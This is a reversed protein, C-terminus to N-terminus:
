FFGGVTVFYPANALDEFRRGNQSTIGMEFHNNYNWRFQKVRFQLMLKWKKVDSRWQWVTGIPGYDMAVITDNFKGDGLDTLGDRTVFSFRLYGLIGDTGGAHWVMNGSGPDDTNDVISNYQWQLHAPSAATEDVYQRNAAMSANTPSILNYIKTEPQGSNPDLVIHSGNRDNIDSTHSTRFRMQGESLSYINTDTSGSNPEICLQVNPKNGRNFCLGDTLTGGSLPLYGSLNVDGGQNADFYAKTILDNAATAMFPHSTNHGAKVSGDATVRFAAPNDIGDVQYAKARVSFVYSGNTTSSSYIAINGNQDWSGTTDGDNPKVEFARGTRRTSKILSNTELTGTLNGGSKKLYDAEIQAQKAEGNEVRALLDNQVILAADITANIGDLSVPPAAPVWEAGTYLYLTLEDPKSDYWLDGIKAPDPPNDDIIVLFDDVSRFAKVRWRNEDWAYIVGNDAQFPQTKDTPFSVAM